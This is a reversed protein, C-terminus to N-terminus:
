LGNQKGFQDILKQKMSGIQNDKSFGLEDILQEIKRYDSYIYIISLVPSYSSFFIVM